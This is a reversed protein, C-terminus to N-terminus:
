WDADHIKTDAILKMESNEIINNIQNIDYAKDSAKISDVIKNADEMSIVNIAKEIKKRM